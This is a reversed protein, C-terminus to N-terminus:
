KMGRILSVINRAALMPQRDHNTEIYNALLPGQRLEIAAADLLRKITGSGELGRRELRQQLVALKEELTRGPPNIWIVRAHPYAAKIAVAGEFGIQIIVHDHATDHIMMGYRSRGCPLDEFLRGTRIAEDFEIDTLYYAEIGHREGPIPRRNIARVAWDV